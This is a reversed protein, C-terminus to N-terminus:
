VRLNFQPKPTFYDGKAKGTDHGVQRVEQLKAEAQLRRPRRQLPRQAEPGVPHVQYILITLM